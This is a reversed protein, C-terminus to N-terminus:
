ALLAPATGFIAVVADAVRRVRPSKRLDPHMVLWIGRRERGEGGPLRVLAPDDHALFHPIAAVGLGARAAHLLTALDNSRLAYPRDSRLTELWRQQPVDRLSDNYGLFRWQGPPLTAVAPAAYLGYGLQGLSRVVLGPTTPRQLRVALDADGRALNAERSEGILELEVGPWLAQRAALRPALFHSALVPPASLRVVGHLGAAAAAARVFGQAASEMAGGDAALTRGEATLVWGRAFRDFLKLDLTAELAEIRRAVTTHEVALERAVASLSGLRALALFTRVDDWAPSPADAGRIRSTRARM